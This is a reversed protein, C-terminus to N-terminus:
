IMTFQTMGAKKTLKKSSLNCTNVLNALKWQLLCVFKFLEFTLILKFDQCGIM